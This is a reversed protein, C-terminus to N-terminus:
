NKSVKKFLKFYIFNFLLIGLMKIFLSKLIFKKNLLVLKTCYYLTELWSHYARIITFYEKMMDFAMKSSLGFLDYEVLTLPIYLFNENLNRLFFEYDGSLMYKINFSSKRLLGNKVIVAQHCFPMTYHLRNVSKPIRVKYDGNHWIRINGYIISYNNDIREILRNLVGELLLDGSNLFLIWNGNAKALGKNMADFIGKDPESVWFSIRDQYKKIIDVTGDTSGGDIIIFEFDDCNQNIVSLITKELTEHANFSVTIISVSQISELM